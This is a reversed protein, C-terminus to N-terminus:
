DAEWSSHLRAKSAILELQQCGCGAPVIRSRFSLHSLESGTHIALKPGQRTPEVVIGIGAVANGPVDNGAAFAAQDTSDAADDEIVCGSAINWFADQVAATAREAEGIANSADGGHIREDRRSPPSV